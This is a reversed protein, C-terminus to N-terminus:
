HRFRAFRLADEYMYMNNFLVYFTKAKGQYEKIRRSLEKLEKDSFKYNYMMPKGFGHLRFYATKRKSFYQPDNRFPDVCNILNFEECISKILKPDNWWDGRPEWTLVVRPKAKKLFSKLNKINDKTAHFGAPCQLLMIEARLAQCIEEMVKYIRVSEKTAFRDKHTVIQHCKVTFEFDPNIKDIQERWKLATKIQPIRYFSSNVEVLDFLDAYAQLISEYKEKWEAGFYDKTRFFGWGCNGIKIVIGV